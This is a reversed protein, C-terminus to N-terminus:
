PGVQVALWERVFEAETVQETIRYNKGGHTFTDGPMAVADHRGTVRVERQRVTGADTNQKTANPGTRDAVSLRQSARPTTPEFTYGGSPAQTKSGQEPTLVYDGGLLELLVEIADRGAGVLGADM